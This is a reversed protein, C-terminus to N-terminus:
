SIVEASKGSKLMKKKKCFLIIQLTFYFDLRVGDDTYHDLILM